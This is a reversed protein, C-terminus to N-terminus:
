NEADFTIPIPIWVSVPRDRNMAPSFQFVAAVRLSAADLEAQGSGESVRANLVQGTESIYYWVVVMGGIGADRLIPPYERVLAAQVESANLIEPRVTMPTFVPGAEIAARDEPRLEQPVAQALAEAIAEAELQSAARRAQLEVIAVRTNAEQVAFAARVRNLMEEASVEQGQVAPPVADENPPPQEIPVSREALDIVTSRPADVTVPETEVTNPPREVECSAVVLLAALLVLGMTRIYRPDDRTDTM